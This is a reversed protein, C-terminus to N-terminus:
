AAEQLQNNLPKCVVSMREVEGISKLAIDSAESWGGPCLITGRFVRRKGAIVAIVEVVYGAAKKQETETSM